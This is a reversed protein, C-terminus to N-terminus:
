IASAVKRTSYVKEVRIESTVDRISCIKEECWVGQRGVASAVRRISYM